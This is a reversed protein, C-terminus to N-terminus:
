DDAVDEQDLYLSNGTQGRKMDLVVL